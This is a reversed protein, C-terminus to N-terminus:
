GWQLSSEIRHPIYSRNINIAGKTKLCASFDRHDLRVDMSNRWFDQHDHYSFMNLFSHRYLRLYNLRIINISNFNAFFLALLKSTHISLVQHILSYSHLVTMLLLINSILLNHCPLHFIWELLFHDFNVTLILYLSCYLIINLSLVRKKM